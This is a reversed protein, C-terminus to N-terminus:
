LFRRISLSRRDAMSQGDSNCPSIRQEALPAEPPANKYLGLEHHPFSISYFRCSAHFARSTVSVDEAPGNTPYCFSRRIVICHIWFFSTRLCYRFTETISEKAPRTPSHGSLAWTHCALDPLWPAIFCEVIRGGSSSLLWFPSVSRLLVWARM